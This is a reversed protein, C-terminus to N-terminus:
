LSRFTFYLIILGMIIIWVPFWYKKSEVLDAQTIDLNM